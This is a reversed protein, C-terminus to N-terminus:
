RSLRLSHSIVSVYGPNCVRRFPDGVVRHDTPAIPL